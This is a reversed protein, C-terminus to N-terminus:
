GDSELANCPDGSLYGTRVGLSVWEIWSIIWFDHLKSWKASHVFSFDEFSAFM